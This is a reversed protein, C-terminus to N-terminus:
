ETHAHQKARRYNHAGRMTDAQTGAHGPAQLSPMTNQCEAHIASQIYGGRCTHMHHSIYKHMGAQLHIHTHIGARWHTSMYTIM